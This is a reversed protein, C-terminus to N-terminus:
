RNGHEKAYNSLVRYFVLHAAAIAGLPCAIGIYAILAQTQDIGGLPTPSSGWAMFAYLGVLAFVVALAGFSALKAYKKMDIEM